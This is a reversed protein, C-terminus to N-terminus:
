RIASVPVIFGVRDGAGASVIGVAKAQGNELAFVPGGSNGHDYNRDNITICGQNLGTQSVTVESYQPILRGPDEAGIGFPYGLVYLKRGASLNQAISRDAQVSGHQSSSHVAWDKGDRFSAKRIALRNGNITITASEDGSRDLVFSSSTLNNFSRGDPSLAKFKMSVEAGNTAYANLLIESESSSENLFFWPEIVHRATVFRGDDLLFATGMPNFNTIVETEGNARVTLETGVIVFVDKHFAALDPAGTGPSTPTSGGGSPPPTYRIQNRIRKIQTRFEEQLAANRSNALTLSDALQSAVVAMEGIRETARSLFYGLTSTTAVLVITLAIIANKYPRMAQQRFLSLRRSLGISGVAPNQPIIFGLRPGTPALQIEDGNNLFWKQNVPRGNVLTQNTKSKHYIVWSNQERAVAAHVDSVMRCDEGYRIVCSKNRGIDAYDVILEQNEGAKHKQTSNKHQLICYTRGSSGTIAAFGAGISKSFSNKIETQRGNSM